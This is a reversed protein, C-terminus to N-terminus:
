PDFRYGQYTGRVPFPGQSKPVGALARVVVSSGELVKSLNELHLFLWFATLSILVAGSGVPVHPKGLSMFKLRHVLCETFKLAWRLDQQERSRSGDILFVSAVESRGYALSAITLGSECVLIRIGRFTFHNVESCM